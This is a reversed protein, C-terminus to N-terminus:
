LDTSHDHSAVFRVSCDLVFSAAPVDILRTGSSGDNIEWGPHHLELALYAVSELAGSLPETLPEPAQRPKGAGTAVSRAVVAEPCEVVANAGDYCICDEVAGSDGAGDFLVEVRAIGAAQLAPVLVAKLHELEARVEAERRTRWGSHDAVVAAFDTM